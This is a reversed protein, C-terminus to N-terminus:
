ENLILKNTILALKVKVILIFIFIWPSDFGIIHYENNLHFSFPSFFINKWFKM